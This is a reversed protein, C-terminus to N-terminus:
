APLVRLRNRAEILLARAQAAIEQCQITLALTQRILVELAEREQERTGLQVTRGNVDHHEAM